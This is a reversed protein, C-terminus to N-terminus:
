PTGGARGIAAGGPNFLFAKVRTLTATFREGHGEARGHLAHTLEHVLTEDVDQERRARNHKESILIMAHEALCLGYIVKFVDLLGGPLDAWRVIWDRDGDRPWPIGHWVTDFIRKTRAELVSHPQLPDRLIKWGPGAIPRGYAQAGRRAMLTAEMRAIADRERQAARRKAQYTAEMRAIAAREMVAALEPARDTPPTGSVIRTKATANPCDRRGCVWCERPASAAPMMTALTM